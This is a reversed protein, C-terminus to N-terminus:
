KRGAKADPEGAGAQGKREGNQKKKLLVRSPFPPGKTGTPGMRKGKM